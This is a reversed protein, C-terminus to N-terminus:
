RKIVHAIHPYLERTKRFEKIYEVIQPKYEPNQSRIESEIKVGETL